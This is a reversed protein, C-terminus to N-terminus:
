QCYSCGAPGINEQLRSSARAPRKLWHRRPGGSVEEPDEPDWCGEDYGQDDYNPLRTTTARTRRELRRAELLTALAQTPLIPRNHVECYDNIFNHYIYM